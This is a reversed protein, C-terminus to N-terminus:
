CFQSVRLVHQSQHLHRTKHTQAQSPPKFTNPQVSIRVKIKRLDFSIMSSDYKTLTLGNATVNHENKERNMKKM